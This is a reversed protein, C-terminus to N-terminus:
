CNVFCMRLCSVRTDWRPTNRPIGPFKEPGLLWNDFKLRSTKFLRDKLMNEIYSFGVPNHLKIAYIRRRASIYLFYSKDSNDATKVCLRPELTMKWQISGKAEDARLQLCFLSQGQACSRYCSNHCGFLKPVKSLRDVPGKFSTRVLAYAYCTLVGAVYPYAYASVYSSRVRKNTKHQEWERMLM